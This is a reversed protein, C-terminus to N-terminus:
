SQGPPKPPVAASAFAPPHGELQKVVEAQQLSSLHVRIVKKSVALEESLTRVTVRDRLGLQELIRRAWTHRTAVLVDRERRPVNRDFIWLFKGHWETEVHGQDILVQLHHGVNGWGKDAVRMLESKYLGRRERVIALLKGRSAAGPLPKM